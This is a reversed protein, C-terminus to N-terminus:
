NRIPTRPWNADVWDAADNVLRTFKPPKKRAETPLDTIVGVRELYRERHKDFEARDVAALGDTRADLIKAEITDFHDQWSREDEIFGFCRKRREGFDTSSLLWITKAASEMATRCLVSVASTRLQAKTLAFAVVQAAAVLNESANMTPYRATSSILNSEGGLAAADDDQALRSGEEIPRPRLGWELFDNAQRARLGIHAIMMARKLKRADNPHLENWKVTSFDPKEVPEGAKQRPVSVGM